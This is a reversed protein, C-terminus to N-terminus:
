KFYIDQHVNMVYHTHLSLTGYNNVKESGKSIRYMSPHAALVHGEGLTTYISPWRRMRYVLM